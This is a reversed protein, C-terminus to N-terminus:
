LDAFWHNFFLGRREGAEQYGVLTALRTSAFADSDFYQVQHNGFLGIVSPQFHEAYGVKLEAEQRRTIRSPLMIESDKMAAFNFPHSCLDLVLRSTVAIVGAILVAFTGLFALFHRGGVAQIM